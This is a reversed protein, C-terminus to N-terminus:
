EVTNYILLGINAKVVVCETLIYIRAGMFCRDNVLCVYYQPILLHYVYKFM